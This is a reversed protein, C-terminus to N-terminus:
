QGIGVAYILLLASSFQLPSPPLAVPQFLALVIAIFTRVGNTQAILVGIEVPSGHSTLAERVTRLPTYATEQLPVEADVKCM